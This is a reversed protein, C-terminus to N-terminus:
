FAPRHVNNNMNFINLAHIAQFRGNQMVNNGILFAQNVTMDSHRQHSFIRKAKANEPFCAACATFRM